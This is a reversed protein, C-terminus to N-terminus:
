PKESSDIYIKAKVGEERRIGEQCVTSQVELIANLERKMTALNFFASWDLSIHQLRNQGLLCPGEGSIVVAPVNGKFGSYQVEM